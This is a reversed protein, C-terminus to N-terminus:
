AATGEVRVPPSGNEQRAAPGPELRERMHRTAEAVLAGVVHSTEDAEPHWQVGLVFRRDSMEIAEPLGDMASSGSIQLGEGLRDVGQHHHSKTAHHLEGAARAALSGPTLEVDHDAGDFTGPVRLHEHHGFREPLHQLLTGGYAINILQMGRCIGLVPLEREIAARVLVIEFRDREPVTDLTQPHPQAGYSAPDIDAGGALLLGDLLDLAEEPRDLLRGDPPLMVVLAGARQVAEVYSRSLLVAQQDWMGWRARELATCIGIVPRNM